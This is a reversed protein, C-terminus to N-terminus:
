FLSLQTQHSKRFARKKINDHLYNQEIHYLETERDRSALIIKTNAAEAAFMAEVIEPRNNEKSLHALLLHSMFAPRHEIFLELAQVNSLHGKDGRIRNKLFLPYRGKILREEDYNTELFAAHCKKFHHVVHDCPMGIDTFVGVTINGCTIIFSHPDIADHLKPFGTIFLNGLQIPQHAEFSYVLNKTIHFKSELYTGSTIYVPLHYKKVLVPIGLIHDSHEHSVFIAKVKEMPLGLRDMRKEIEGCSIGADVFIAERDNGIYYCNGNSGSNLSAIFLSMDDEFYM